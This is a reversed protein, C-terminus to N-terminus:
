WTPHKERITTEVPQASAIWLRVPILEDCAENVVIRQIQARHHRVDPQRRHNVARYQKGSAAIRMRGDCVRRLSTMLSVASLASLGSADSAAYRERMSRLFVTM